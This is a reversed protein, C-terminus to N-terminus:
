KGSERLNKLTKQYLSVLVGAEMNGPHSTQLETLVEEIRDTQRMELLGALLFMEPNLDNPGAAEMRLRKYDNELTTLGDSAGISRLRVMGVRGQGDPSPTKALQKVLVDPLVKIQPAPLGSGKGELATIELRGAGSWSEQRKSEFFVMQVRAGAELALMDGQKLKVFTQLAERGAPGVRSVKGELATVLAASEGAALTLSAWFLLCVGLIHSIIFSVKM